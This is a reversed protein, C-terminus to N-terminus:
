FLGEKSNFFYYLTPKTVQAMAVIESVGVADYGKSAFLELACKLITERSNQERM